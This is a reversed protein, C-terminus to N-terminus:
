LVGPVKGALPLFVFLLQLHSIHFPATLVYTQKAPAPPTDTKSNWGAHVVVVHTECGNTKRMCVNHARDKCTNLLSPLPAWPDTCKTSLLDVLSNHTTFFTILQLQRTSDGLWVTWHTGPVRQSFCCCFFMHDHGQACIEAHEKPQWLSIYLKALQM